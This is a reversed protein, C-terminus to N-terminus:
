QVLGGSRWYEGLTGSEALYAHLASLDRKNLWSDLKSVVTGTSRMEVVFLQGPDLEDVLLDSHTSIVIQKRRAHAKITSVIRTLLGHHVCVEPEEVMLFKSANTTIYFALALTKFTGESLQNFTLHSTGIQVKPVILSKKKKVKKVEKGSGSVVATSTSLEVAKWTFRSILGLEARSVFRQYAEYAPADTKRLSYLDHLFRLHPTNQYPNYTDVLRGQEDVEFGSPCRSPDTFQSASYYSIASRFDDIAVLAALVAKNQLISLDLQANKTTYSLAASTDYYVRRDGGLDVFKASGGRLLRIPPLQVWRKSGGVLSGLNWAETMPVFDAGGGARAGEQLGLAVKLGILEGHVRFSAVLEAMAGLEDDAGRGAPRGRKALLRIGQLVNTKGAGNIGILASLGDNPSFTTGRCSRYGTVQITELRVGDALGAPKEKTAM